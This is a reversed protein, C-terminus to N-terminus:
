QPQLNISKAISRYLQVEATYLKDLEAPTMAAAVTMGTGELNSLPEDFLFVAPQRM